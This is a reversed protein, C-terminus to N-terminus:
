LKSKKHFPWVFGRKTIATRNQRKSLDAKLRKSGSDTFKFKLRKKGNADAANELKWSEDVGDSTKPNPFLLSLGLSALARNSHYWSNTFYNIQQEVRGKVSDFDNVLDEGRNVWDGDNLQSNVSEADGYNNRSAGANFDQWAEPLPKGKLYAKTLLREGSSDLDAGIVQRIRRPKDAHSSVEEGSAVNDSAGYGLGEVQSAPELVDRAALIKRGLQSDAGVGMSPYDECGGIAAYSSLRFAANPGITSTAVEYNSGTRTTLMNMVQMYLQSVHYGPYKKINEAGWRISGVFADTEKNKAEAEIYHRLYSSHMGLADADNTVMLVDQSRNIAGSDMGRKVAIAATDYLTKIVEGYMATHGNADKRTELWEHSWVKEFSAINLEPFDHKAREIESITKNIKLKDELKDTAGEKWNVNLLIVSNKKSAEDQQSYLSLANYINESEQVAAVPMVVILKTDGNINKLKDNSAIRGEIEQIYAEGRKSQQEVAYRDLEEGTNLIANPNENLRPSRESVWRDLTQRSPQAEYGYGNEPSAPTPQEVTQYKSEASGLNQRPVVPIVPPVEIYDPLLTDFGPTIIEFNPIRDVTEVVSDFPISGVDQKGLVAALSRVTNIGNSDESRMEAIRAIYGHFVASGNEKSFLAAAPSDAPIIAQGDPGITVAFVHDATGKSASVLLSLKGEAALEKWNAIEGDHFSGGEAMHSVDFQYGNDVSIGNHGGWWEGLENLDHTGNTNNDYFFNCTANITSKLNHEVFQDATIVEHITETSTVNYSKDIVNMGLSKLQDVSGQPLSGNSNIPINDASVSGNHDIIDFTGNGNNVISSDNSVALLDKGGTFSESNLGAGPGTHVAAHEASFIGGLLTKHLEGNVPINHAGWAQELLGVRTPDLAAGIEQAAIGFTLSTVVGIAVAKAVHRAKIKKFNEDKSSIDADLVEKYEGSRSQIVHNIDESGIGLERRMEDTLHTTIIAKANARARDLQLRETVVSETNSFRLLDMGKSDSYQNRLEIKVLADIASDLAEKGGTVLMEEGVLGDLEEAIEKASASEYVTDQLESRRRDKPNFEKSVANDRLHNARDENMRKHEQLGALTGSIASGILLGGAAGLVATAGRKAGSRSGLRLVSATISAASVIALPMIVSGIKTRALKDIVEDVKNFKAETRLDSRADGMIIQINDIVNDISEGHEVKGSVTKAIELLNDVSAIGVGIDEDPHSVRYDQLLQNRAEALAGDDRFEGRCYARVLEKAGIALEHTPELINKKEGTNTHIAEEFDQQFQLIRSEKAQARIEAPANPDSSDGGHEEIYRRAEVRYKRIYHDKALGSKWIKDIFHKFKGGEELELQLREEAMDDARHYAHRSDDVNLVLKLPSNEEVIGTGTPASQEAVVVPVTLESEAAATENTYIENRYGEAGPTTTDVEDEMTEVPIIAEPEAVETENTYIENRHGEAGPTIIDVEDEMMEAPAKVDLNGSISNKPEIETAAQPADVTSSDINKRRSMMERHMVDILGMKHNDTVGHIDRDTNNESITPIKLLREQLEDQVNSSTTKDHNDEAEAWKGILSNITMDEYRAGLSEEGRNANALSKFRNTEADHINNYQDKYDRSMLYDRMDIEGQLEHQKAATDGGFMQASAIDDSLRNIRRNSVGLPDEHLINGYLLHDTNAETPTKSPGSSSEVSM